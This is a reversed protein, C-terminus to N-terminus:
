KNVLCFYSVGLKKKLVFEWFGFVVKDQVHQLGDGFLVQVDGVVLWEVLAQCCSSAGGRWWQGGVVVLRGM